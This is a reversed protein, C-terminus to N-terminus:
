FLELCRAALGETTEGEGAEVFPLRLRRVAEMMAADYALTRALFADILRRGEADRAEYGSEAHMRRTILAPEATLWMARVAPHDLEAVAEPWLASGELVLLDQAPDDAHFRILERVMPWMRDYHALVSALLAETTLTGYHRAVHDPVAEGPQRWPRGPHRALSDTSLARGGVREAIARALTSKGTHSSGGILVVRAAM